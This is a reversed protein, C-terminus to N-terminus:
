GSEGPAWTTMHEQTQLIEFRQNLLASLCLCMSVSQNAHWEHSTLTILMKSAPSSNSWMCVHVYIGGSFSFFVIFGGSLMCSVVRCVERELQAPMCMQRNQLVVGVCM